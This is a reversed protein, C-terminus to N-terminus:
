SIVEPFALRSSALLSTSLSMFASSIKRQGFISTKKVHNVIRKLVSEVFL